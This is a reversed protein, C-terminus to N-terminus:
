RPWQRFFQRCGPSEDFARAFVDLKYDLRLTTILSRRNAHHLLHIQEECAQATDLDADFWLGDRVEEFPLVAHDFVVATYDWGTDRWGLAFLVRM